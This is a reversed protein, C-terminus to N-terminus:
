ILKRRMKKLTKEIPEFKAKGAKILRDRKKIEEIWLKEAEAESIGGEEELLYDILRQKEKESLAKTESKIKQLLTM